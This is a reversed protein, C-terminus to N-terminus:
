MPYHGAQMVRRLQMEGKADREFLYERPLFEASTGAMASALQPQQAGRPAAPPQWPEVRRPPTAQREAPAPAAVSVEVMPLAPEAPPPTWEQKRASLLRM